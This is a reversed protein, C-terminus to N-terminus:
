QLTGKVGNGWIDLVYVELNSINNRFMPLNNIKIDLVFAPTTFIGENPIPHDNGTHTENGLATLIKDFRDYASQYRNFPFVNLELDGVTNDDLWPINGDRIRSIEEFDLVATFTNKKIVIARISAKNYPVAIRVTATGEFGQSPGFGQSELLFINVKDEANARRPWTGLQKLIHPNHTPNFLRMPHVNVLEDQRLLKRQASLHLHNNSTAGSSGMKGILDGKAITGGEVLSSKVQSLHRYAIYINQRFGIGGKFQANCKVTVYRGEETLEMAADSGDVIEYITGDCMCKVDPLTDTGKPIKGDVIDAGRHFDYLADVKGDNARMRPGFFSMFYRNSNDPTYDNINGCFSSENLTEGPPLTNQYGNNCLVSTEIPAVFDYTYDNPEFNTVGLDSTNALRIVTFEQQALAITSFCVAILLSLLLKKNEM